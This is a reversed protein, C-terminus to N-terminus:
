TEDKLQSMKRVDCLMENNFFNNCPNWFTLVDDSEYYSEINQFRKRRAKSYVANEHKVLHRKLAINKTANQAEKRIPSILLVEPEVCCKM